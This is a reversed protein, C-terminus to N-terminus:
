RLGIPEEERDEAVTETPDEGLGIPEEVPDVVEGIPCPFSDTKM